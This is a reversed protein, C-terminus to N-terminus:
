DGRTRNNDYRCQELGNRCGVAAAIGHVVRTVGAAVPMMGGVEGGIEWVDLSWGRPM